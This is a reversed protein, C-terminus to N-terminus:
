RGLGQLYSGVSRMADFPYDMWSKTKVEEKAKAQEVERQKKHRAIEAQKEAERQAEIHAFPNVYDRAKLKYPADAM